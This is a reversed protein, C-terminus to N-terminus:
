ARSRLRSGSSPGTCRSAFPPPREWPASRLDAAGSRLDVRQQPPDVAAGPRGLGPRTGSPVPPVRFPIAMELSWGGDFLASRTEWVPNWDLNPNGENTIQFDSFGGIATTSFALANRRDYFTDFFVAIHDNSRLQAADRRMENAIWGDPGASDYVRAAFYVNEEDYGFWLETRESPEGDEIPVAQVLQDIAPVREYFEEDLLGDIDLPEDLRYARMTGRGPWAAHHLQGRGTAAPRRGRTANESRGEFPAQDETDAVPGEPPATIPAAERGETPSPRPPRPPMLPSVEVQSVLWEGRSRTRVEAYRWPGSVPGEGPMDLAGDLRLVTIATGGFIRPEVPSEPWRTEDLRAAFSAPDLEPGDAYAIVVRARPSFHELYAELDGAALASM